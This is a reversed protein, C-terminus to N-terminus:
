AFMRRSPAEFGIFIRTRFHSASEGPDFDHPDLAFQATYFSEHNPSQDEVYLGTTDDIFAEMGCAGGMAAAPTAFLDGAGNSNATWADLNCEFGDNFITGAAHVSAPSALALAALAALVVTQRRMM